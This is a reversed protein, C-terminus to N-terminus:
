CFENNIYIRYVVFSFDVVITKTYGHFLFYLQTLTYLYPFVIIHTITTSPIVPGDVAFSFFITITSLAIGGGPEM